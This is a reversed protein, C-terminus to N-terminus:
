IRYVCYRVTLPPGVTPPAAPPEVASKGDFMSMSFTQASAAVLWTVAPVDKLKPISEVSIAALESCQATGTCCQLEPGSCHSGGEHEANASEVHRHTIRELLADDNDVALMPAGQTAADPSTSAAVCPQAALNLSLLALLGLAARAKVRQSLTGTIRFQM